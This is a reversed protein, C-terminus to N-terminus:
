RGPGANEMAWVLVIAVALIASVVTMPIGIRDLMQIRKSVLMEKPDVAPRDGSLHMAMLDHLGLTMRWYALVVVATTVLVWITILTSLEM